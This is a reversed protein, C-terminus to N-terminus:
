CDVPVPLSSLPSQGRIHSFHTCHLACQLVTMGAKQSMGSLWGPPHLWEVGSRICTSPALAQGADSGWCSWCHSCNMWVFHTTQIISILREPRRTVSFAGTASSTCFASTEEVPCPTMSLSERPGMISSTRCVWCSSCACDHHLYKIQQVAASVFFSIDYQWM